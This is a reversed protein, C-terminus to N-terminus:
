FDEFKKAADDFVANTALGLSTVAAFIALAILSVMIAYEVSTAGNEDIFLSLFKKKVLIERTLKLPLPRSAFNFDAERGLSKNM